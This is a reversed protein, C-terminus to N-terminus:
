GSPLRGIRSFSCEIEVFTQNILEVEYTSNMSNSLLEPKADIQQSSRALDSAGSGAFDPIDFSGNRCAAALDAARHLDALSLRRAGDEVASGNFSRESPPCIQPARLVSKPLRGVGAPPRVRRRRSLLIKPVGKFRHISTRPCAARSQLLRRLPPHMM